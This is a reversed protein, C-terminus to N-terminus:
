SGPTIGNFEFHMYDRRTVWNGGWTFGHNHFAAVYDQPMNYGANCPCVQFPNSSSNIDCAAGYTHYSSLGINSSGNDSDFRYCGMDNIKYTSGGQQIDDAVASLCPAALKNISVSHGLFNVTVLNAAMIPHSTATGPDGFIQSLQAQSYENGSGNVSGYVPAPVNCSGSTGTTSSTCAQPQDAPNNSSGGTFVIPLPTPDAIDWYQDILAQAAVLKKQYNSGSSFGSGQVKQAAVWPALSQWNPIHQLGSTGFPRPADTGPPAGFFAEAAYAPEMLQFVAKPLGNAYAQSAARDTQISGSAGPALTSWGSAVRQQMVGVSDYDGAADGQKAPNTESVPVKQNPLNTLTSEALGVMLGILAGPKGLNDTKAIGMIIKANGVQIQSPPTPSGGGTDAGPTNTGCLSVAAGVDTNFYYIGSNLVDAQSQSLASVSAPALLAVIALVNMLLPLIKLKM